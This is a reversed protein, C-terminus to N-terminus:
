LKTNRGVSYQHGFSQWVYHWTICMWVYHLRRVPKRGHGRPLCCRYASIAHFRTTSASRELGRVRWWSHWRSLRTPTTFPRCCNESCRLASIWRTSSVITRSVASWLARDRPPVAIPTRIPSSFLIAFLVRSLFDRLLMDSGNKYPLFWKTWLSLVTMGAVWRLLINRIM